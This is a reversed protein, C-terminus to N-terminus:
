SPPTLALAPEALAPLDGAVLGHTAFAVIRIDSLDLSKVKTVTADQGLYVSSSPAGLFKHRPACNTPPKRCARSNIYATSIPPAAAFCASLNFRRKRRSAKRRAAALIPIASVLSLSAQM